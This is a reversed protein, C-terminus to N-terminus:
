GGWRRQARMAQRLTFNGKVNKNGGKKTGKKKQEGNRWKQM